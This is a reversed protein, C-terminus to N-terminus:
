RCAKRHQKQLRRKRKKVSYRNAKLQAPDKSGHGGKYEGFGLAMLVAQIATKNKVAAKETEQKPPATPVADVSRSLGKGM